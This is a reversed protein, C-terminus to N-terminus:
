GEERPPLLAAARKRRMADRVARRQCIPCRRRARGRETTQVYRHGRPCREKATNRATVSMPARLSNERSTVPELHFPNVCCRVRCLHDIERGDPIPGRFHEFAWRHALVQRGVRTDYFHGYGKGDVNAMWIWCGTVTIREVKAEFRAAAPVRPTRPARDGTM